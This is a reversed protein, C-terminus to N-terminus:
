LWSQLGHLLKCHQVALAANAMGGACRLAPRAKWTSCSWCCCAGSRTGPASGRRACCVALWPGCAAARTVCGAQAPQETHAPPSTGPDAALSPVTGPEGTLNGSPLIAVCAQGAHSQAPEAAASHDAMPQCARDLLAQDLRSDLDPQDGAAAASHEAALQEPTVWTQLHRGDASGSRARAKTQWPPVTFAAEQAPRPRPM